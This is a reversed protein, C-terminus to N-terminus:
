RSSIVAFSIQVALLYRLSGTPSPPFGHMGVRFVQFALPSSISTLLLLSLALSKALVKKGGGGGVDVTGSPKAYGSGSGLGGWIVFVCTSRWIQWSEGYLAYPGSSIALM